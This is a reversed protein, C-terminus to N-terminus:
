ERGRDRETKINRDKWTVSHLFFTMILSRIFTFLFFILDVPYLLIHLLSFSGIRKLMWSIQLGYGLYLFLASAAASGGVASAVLLVTISYAGTIWMAILIFSFIGISFAGTSFNKSWGELLDGLGGPYMRFDIVGRGGYCNVPFDSDQFLRGLSVDDLISGKIKRHGGATFYDSRGCIICPGFFAEGKLRNGLPTFLNTSMMTIINFIASLQEYPKRISHYPQISIAGGKEGYAQVMRELADAELTTDADLFILIEGEATCAGKWCAWSKGIWGPPLAGASIVRCGSRAAISATADESNDDVVIIEGAKKTQLGITRLLSPLNEEENRAPIVISM